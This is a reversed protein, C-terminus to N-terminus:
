GITAPAVAVKRPETGDVPEITLAAVISPSRGALMDGFPPRAAQCEMWADRPTFPLRHLDALGRITTPEVGAKGGNTKRVVTLTEPSARAVHVSLVRPRHGAESLVRIAEQLDSSFARSRVDVVAAFRSLPIKPAGLTVPMRRNIEAIQCELDDIM